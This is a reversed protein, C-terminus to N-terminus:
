PQQAAQAGHARPDDNIVTQRSLPDSNLNSAQGFNQLHPLPQNAVLAQLNDALIAKPQEGIASAIPQNDANLYVFHPIGDVRYELMEPLWKNNDVNLMVFNVQDGYVQRLDAMDGAMAQCTTCWNAYFEVLSPKGNTQAVDYPVASAALTPLSTTSAQTRLGLFITVSLVIAAFAVVLNRIKTAPSDLNDPM